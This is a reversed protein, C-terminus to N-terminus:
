AANFEFRSDSDFDQPDAYLRLASGDGFSVSLEWNTDDSSAEITALSKGLLGLEEGIEVLEGERDDSSDDFDQFTEEESWEEWFTAGADLFFRQWPRSKPKLWLMDCTNKTEQWAIAREVVCGELERSTFQFHQYLRGRPIEPFRLVILEVDSSSDKLDKSMEELASVFKEHGNAELTEVNRVELFCAGPWGPGSASLADWLADLNQGFMGAGAPAVQKMYLSWFDAPTQIMSCELVHYTREIDM